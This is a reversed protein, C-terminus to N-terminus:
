SDPLPQNPAALSDTLAEFAQNILDPLEPTGNSKVWTLVATSAAALCAAVIVRTQFSPRPDSATALWAWAYWREGKSGTGVSRVEWATKRKLLKKAAEACTVTTDAALALTFSSAVRLVYAQERDELFERLATCAGYVEDGCVFDFCLGDRYSATLIDVALESKTRFGLGPPLGTVLSKVPGQHGGCSDV